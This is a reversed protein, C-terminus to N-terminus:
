VRYLIVIIIYDVCPPQRPRSMRVAVYIPVFRSARVAVYIPVFVAFRVPNHMRLEPQLSPTFSLLPCPPPLSPFTREVNLPEYTLSGSLGYRAWWFISQHYSTYYTNLSPLITKLPICLTISFYTVQTCGCVCVRVCVCMDVRVRTDGRIGRV